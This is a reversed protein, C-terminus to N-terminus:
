HSSSDAHRTCPFASAVRTAGRRADGERLLQDGTISTPLHCVEARHIRNSCHVALERALNRNVVLVSSGSAELRNAAASFENKM